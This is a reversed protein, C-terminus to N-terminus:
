KIVTAVIRSLFFWFNYERMKSFYVKTYALILCTKNKVIATIKLKRRTASGERLRRYYITNEPALVISEIKDSITAMFLADEGIAFCPNFRNEGIIEIPIIKCWSTSLFKRMGVFSYEQKGRWRNFASSLYDTGTNGRNDFTLVNSIAICNGKSFISNFLNLLYNESVKDDDDVFCVSEGQAHNLGINRANSVGVVSTYFFRSQFSYNQLKHQIDTAYPEKDGNLIILVEFSNKDFTQKDLSELCEDLYIQPKYTPIIVTIEM